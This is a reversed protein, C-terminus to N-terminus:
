RGCQGFLSSFLENKASDSWGIKQNPAMFNILKQHIDYRAKRGKSARTDVNNKKAKSRLRQVQLWHRGLQSPDTVGVTKREILERLLQHYFDDDDFIEEDRSKEEDKEKDDEEETGLVKYDSRKVQTRAVLRSKDALVFQIQKLTSTELASFAKKSNVNGSALKTRDNWKHITADRFPLLEEHRRSLLSSYESLKMRKSPSEDKEEVEENLRSLASSQLELLDDLLDSVSERARKVAQRHPLEFASKFQSWSQHRPFRNVKTAVKQLQIRIEMLKEWLRLQDRIVRGKAVEDMEKSKLRDIEVLSDEEEEEEDSAASMEMEEDGDKEEDGDEEEQEEDDEADEMEFLDGLEALSHEKEDLIDGRDQDLAKRSTRKGKYRKDTVNLRPATKTRLASRRSAVVTSEDDSPDDGGEVVKAGTVDDGDDEHDHDSVPAIAEEIRRRLDSGGRM